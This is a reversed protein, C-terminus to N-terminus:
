RRRFVNIKRKKQLIDNSDCGIFAFKCCNSELYKNFDNMFDVASVDVEHPLFEMYRGYHNENFIIRFYKNKELLVADCEIRADFFDRGSDHEKQLCDCYGKAAGVGDREDTQCGTVAFIVMFSIITRLM